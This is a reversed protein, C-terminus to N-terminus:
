RHTGDLDSTHKAGIDSAVRQAVEEATLGDTEVSITNEHGPDLTPLLANRGASIINAEKLRNRREPMAVRRALEYPNRCSLRVVIMRSGRRRAVNKIEEFVRLESPDDLASHTFIFSWHLPSITSITELVASRVQGALPWITQPLPTVGDQEVLSFIVNLWYHNDVLRCGLREALLRGITYKGVGPPGVVYIITGTLMTSNVLRNTVRLPSSKRAVKKPGAPSLRPLM